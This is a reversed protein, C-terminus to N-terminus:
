MMSDSRGDLQEPLVHCARPQRCDRRLRVSVPVRGSKGSEQAALPLKGLKSTIFKEPGAALMAPGSGLLQASGVANGFRCIRPRLVVCIVPVKGAAQPWAPAKGKRDSSCKAPVPKVPLYLSM